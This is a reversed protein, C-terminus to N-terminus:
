CFIYYCSWKNRIYNIFAIVFGLTLFGGVPLVMLTAAPFNEGFIHYGCKTVKKSAIMTDCM